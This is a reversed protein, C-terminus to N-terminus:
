RTLIALIALIMTPLAMCLALTSRAIGFVRAEGAAQGIKRSETRELDGLRQNIAQHDERSEKRHAAFETRIQEQLDLVDRWSPRASRNM